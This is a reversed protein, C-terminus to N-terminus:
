LRSSVLVSVNDVGFLKFTWWGRAASSAGPCDYVVVHDDMNLGLQQVKETFEKASPVMHPLPSSLDAVDDVDFRIANAIRQFLCLDLTFAVDVLNHICCIHFRKNLTPTQMGHHQWTGRYM